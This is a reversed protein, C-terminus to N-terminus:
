STPNSKSMLFIFSFLLFIDLVSHGEPAPTADSTKGRVPNLFLTIINCTGLTKRHPQGPPRRPRVLAVGGDKTVTLIIVVKFCDLRTNDQIINDRTANEQTTINDYSCLVSLSLFEYNNVKADSHVFLYIFTKM